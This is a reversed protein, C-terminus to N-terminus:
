NKEMKTEKNKETKIQKEKKEAKAEKNKKVPPKRTLSEIRKKDELNLENIMLNSPEFFINVKTGDRKKAQIGEIAVKMKKVNVVSIKGTKKNYLGRMVKVDDGKRLPFSRRGYKKRLEKSLHSSLKLHHMHLPANALYKRQKRTQRSKRWHISFSQKM